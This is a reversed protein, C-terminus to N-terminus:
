QIQKRKQIQIQIRGTEELWEAQHANDDNYKNEYKYKYKYVVLRKSENLRALMIIMTNTKMNTNTDSWDIGDM